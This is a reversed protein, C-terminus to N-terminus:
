REDSCEAIGLAGLLVGEAQVGRCLVDQGGQDPEVLGRANDATAIAGGSILCREGMQARRRRTVASREHQGSGPLECVGCGPRRPGGAFVKFADIRQADIVWWGRGSMRALPAANPRIGAWPQALPVDGVAMDSRCRLYRASHRWRGHEYATDVEIEAVTV